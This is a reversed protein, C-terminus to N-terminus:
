VITISESNDTSNEITSKKAISKKDLEDIKNYIKELAEPVANLRDYTDKTSNSFIAIIIDAAIRFKENNTM